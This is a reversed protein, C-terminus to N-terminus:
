NSTTTENLRGIMVQLVDVAINFLMPSLPDGQRLVRKHTFFDSPEGNIIVQSASTSFIDRIWRVWLTPFGRAKMIEFLFKWSM